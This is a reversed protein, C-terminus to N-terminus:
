RMRRLIRDGPLALRSRRRFARAYSWETVFHGTPIGIMIGLVICLLDTM